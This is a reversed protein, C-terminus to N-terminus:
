RRNYRWILQLARMIRGFRRGVLAIFVFVLLLLLRTRASTLRMGMAGLRLAAAVRSSFPAPTTPAAAARSPAAAPLLAKLQVADGLSLGLCQLADLTIGPLM